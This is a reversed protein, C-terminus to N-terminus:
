EELPIECKHKQVSAFPIQSLLNKGIITQCKPCKWEGNLWGEKWNGISNEEDTPESSTNNWKNM